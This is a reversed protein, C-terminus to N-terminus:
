LPTFQFLEAEWEACEDLLRGKVPAHISVLKKPHERPPLM